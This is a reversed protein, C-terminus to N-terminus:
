TAVMHASRLVAALRRYMRFALDMASDCSAPQEDLIHRAVCAGAPHRTFPWSGFPITLAARAKQLCRRTDPWAAGHGRPDRATSIGVRRAPACRRQAM